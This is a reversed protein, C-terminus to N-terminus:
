STPLLLLALLLSQTSGRSFFINLSLDAVTHGHMMSRPKIWVLREVCNNALVSQSFQVASFEPKGRRSLQISM